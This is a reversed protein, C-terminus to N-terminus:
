RKDFVAITDIIEGEATTGKSTVTLVKGDASVTRTTIIAPKGERKQTSQTTLADIRKLSITNGGSSGTIAYDKGDYRATYQVLTPKGSADVGRATLKEVDGEIQYARLQGKPGPGPVFTSKARNLQWHGILPDSADAALSMAPLTVALMAGILAIRMFRNM